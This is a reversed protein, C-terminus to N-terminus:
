LEYIDDRTIRDLKVGLNHRPLIFKHAQKRSKRAVYERVARSIIDQQRVGQELAMKAVLYKLDPDLRITTRTM